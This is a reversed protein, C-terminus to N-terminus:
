APLGGGDDWQEFRALGCVLAWAAAWDGKERRSDLDAFAEDMGTSLANGDASSLM